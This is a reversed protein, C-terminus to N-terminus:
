ENEEGERLLARIEQRVQEAQGEWADALAAHEQEAQILLSDLYEEEQPLDPPEQQLSVEAYQGAMDFQVGLCFWDFRDGPQGHVLAGYDTRELWLSAAGDVPTLLWRVAQPAIAEGYQQSYTVPCTGDEGVTGGGWDCFAPEPSEMAAFALNGLPTRVIRNKAGWASLDRTSLTGSVGLNGNTVDVSSANFRVANEPPGEVQMGVYSDPTGGNVWGYNVYKSNAGLYSTGYVSYLVGTLYSIGGQEVFWNIRDSNIEFRTGATPGSRIYGSELNYETNGSESRIVGTTINDGNIVSTGSGSLDAFTVMGTFTIDASTLRIGNASLTLTSTDGDSEATLTISDVTQSLQTYKGDLESAKINLGDVDASIELMKGQLNTWKQQNVATTSDRRASGTAELTVKQGSITRQMVPMRMASGYSDTVTIYQGPEPLIGDAQISVSLPTYCVGQMTEYIAQAVPRLDDASATTLLLNGQLVLGNTGTEEPPYLVGVDDDSQRIQVKDIPAIEYDEHSLSGSLYGARPQAFTWVSGDACAFIQGALNLATWVTGGGPGIGTRASETYWAFELTGEPTMRAFRCAAQAAWQILQRGTLDDAYFAQVPYEGSPLSDLTGDALTMGCRACVARVFDALTMPFSGQQERLWPSLNQDLLTMRDYATVRIVNASVKEPKEALFIGAQTETGTDTDIRTLTMRTGQAISLGNEPAWLEIEACAACAAGPSLDEQDSVQETLQVSRITGSDLVTGDALTLKHALLPM